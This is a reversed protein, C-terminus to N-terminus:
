GHPLLGIGLFVCIIFIHCPLFIFSSLLSDTDFEHFNILIYYTFTSLSIRQNTQQVEFTAFYILLRITSYEKYFKENLNFKLSNLCIELLFNLLRHIHM